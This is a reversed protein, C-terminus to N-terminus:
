IYHLNSYPNDWHYFLYRNNGGNSLFLMDEGDTDGEIVTLIEPDLNWHHSEVPAIGPMYGSFFPMTFLSLQFLGEDATFYISDNFIVGKSPNTINMEMIDEYMSPIHFEQNNILFVIINQTGNNAVFYLGNSFEMLHRPNSGDEGELIDSYLNTGQWTGNSQWLERGHDGDDAVFYMFENDVVTLHKPNSSNSNLDMNRVLVTSATTGNTKWLELGTIGDDAAFYVADGFQTFEADSHINFSDDSGEYIDKVMDAGTSSSQVLDFKWLERGSENDDATFYITQGSQFFDRPQSGITDIIVGQGDSTTMSTDGLRLNDIQITGALTGDSIWPEEGFCVVNEFSCSFGSFVVRDQGQIGYSSGPIATLSNVGQYNITVEGTSTPCNFLDIVMETGSETGDSVYLERIPDPFGDVLGTSAFFLYSDGAVLEGIDSDMNTCTPCMAPTLDIVMSTGGLTGDSKWLENGHIGDDATFYLVGGMEVAQSIGADRPFGDTSGISSVVGSNGSCEGIVMDIENGTLQGNDSDDHGIKIKKTPDSLPCGNVDTFTQFMIRSIQDEVANLANTLSSIEDTADELDDYFQNNDSILESIQLNLSEIESELETFASENSAIAEDLISQLADRQLITDNLTAENDYIQINLNAVTDNVDSLSAQLELSLNDFFEINSEATELQSSLNDNSQQLDIIQKELDEIDSIDSSTCGSLISTLMILIMILPRFNRM